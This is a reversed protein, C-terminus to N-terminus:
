SGWVYMMFVHLLCIYRHTSAKTNYWMRKTLAREHTYFIFTDHIHVHVLSCQRPTPCRFMCTQLSLALPLALTMYILVFTM